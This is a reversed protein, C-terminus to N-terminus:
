KTNRAVTVEQSTMYCQRDTGIDNVLWASSVLTTCTFSMMPHVFVSCPIM